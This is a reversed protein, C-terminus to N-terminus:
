KVGGTPMAVAQYMIRGTITAGTKSTVTFSVPRASENETVKITAPPTGPVTYTVTFSNRDWDRATALAAAGDGWSISITYDGAEKVTFAFSGDKASKTTLSAGSPKRVVVDVGPIPNTAALADSAFCASLVFFVLYAFFSRKM